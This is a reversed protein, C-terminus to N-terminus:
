VYASPIPMFSELQRHVKYTLYVDKENHDLIYTLAKKDGFKALNWTAGDVRTKVGALGFMTGVKDLSYGSIKYLLHAMKWTDAFRKNRYSPLGEIKNIVLRARVFPMDMKNWGNFYHGVLLDLDEIDKLWKQLIRGDFNTHRARLSSDIDKRNIIGQRMETKGTQVDRVLICYSIIFGFDADLNTTEIDFYGIKNINYHSYKEKMTMEQFPKILKKAM